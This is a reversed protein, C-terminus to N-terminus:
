RLNVKGMRVELAHCLDCQFVYADDTRAKQRSEDKFDQEHARQLDQEYFVKSLIGAGFFNQLRLSSEKTPRRSRDLADFLEKATREGSYLCRQWL